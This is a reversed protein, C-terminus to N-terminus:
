STLQIVNSVEQSTKVTLRPRVGTKYWFASSLSHMVIDQYKTPTVLSDHVPLTPVNKHKYLNYVTDYIITAESYQLTFTDEKLPELLELFPMAELFVAVVESWKYGEKKIDKPWNHRPLYGTGLAKTIVSKVEERNLIGHLKKVVLDYYDPALKTEDYAVAAVGRSSLITPQCAAIDIECVPESDIKIKLREREPMQECGGYIRGGWYLTHNFTRSFGRFNRYEGLSNSLGQFTHQFAYSNLEEVQNRLANLDEEEFGRPPLKYGKKKHYRELERPKVIILDNRRKPEREPKLNEWALELSKIENVIKKKVLYRRALGDKPKQGKPMSIWDLAILQEVVNKFVSHAVGYKAHAYKERNSIWYVLYDPDESAAKMISVFVRLRNQTHVPGKTSFTLKDFLPLLNGTTEIWVPRVFTGKKVDETIM